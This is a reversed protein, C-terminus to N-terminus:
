NALKTTELTAKLTKKTKTLAAKEARPLRDIKALLKKVYILTKDIGEVSEFTHLREQM